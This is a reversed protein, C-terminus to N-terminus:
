PTCEATGAVQGTSRHWAQLRLLPPPPAHSTAAPQSVQPSSILIVHRFLRLPAEYALRHLYCDKLKPADSFTLQHLCKGACHLACRAYAHGYAAVDVLGGCPPVDHPLLDLCCKTAPCLRWSVCVCAGKGVSKLLSIGTEVMTNSTYLFGLHPGSVSLYLWLLHRYAALKPQTLAARLILNGISHGVFSLKRLPRRHPAASPLARCPAADRCPIAHCPMALTGTACLKKRGACLPSPSAAEAWRM